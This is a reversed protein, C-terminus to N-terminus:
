RELFCCDGSSQSEWRGVADAGAGIGLAIPLRGLFAALTTMM